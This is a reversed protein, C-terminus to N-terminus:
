RQVARNILRAAAAHFDADEADLRNIWQEHTLGGSINM